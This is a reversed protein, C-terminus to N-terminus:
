CGAAERKVSRSTTLPQFAVGYDMEENDVFCVRVCKM